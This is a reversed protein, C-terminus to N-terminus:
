KKRISFLMPAVRSPNAKAYKVDLLSPIYKGNLERNKLVSLKLVSRPDMARAPDGKCFAVWEHYLRIYKASVVLYPRRTTKSKQTIQAFRGYRKSALGHRLVTCGASFGGVLESLPASGSGAFHINIAADGYWMKLQDDSSNIVRKDDTRVLTLAYATGKDYVRYAHAGSGYSEAKHLTNVLRYERGELLYPQGESSQTV